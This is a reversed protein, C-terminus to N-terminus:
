LVDSTYLHIHKPAIILPIHVPPVIPTRSINMHANMITPIELHSLGVWGASHAVEWM